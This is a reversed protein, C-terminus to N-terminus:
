RITNSEDKLPATEPATTDEKNYQVGDGPLAIRMGNIRVPVVAFNGGVTFPLQKDGALTRITLTHAGPALPLRALSVTAPLMRWSREDAGELLMGAAATAIKAVAGLLGGGAKEMQREAARQAALRAAARTFTRVMIMPMEDKLARRAMLGFDAVQDVAVAQGDILLTDIPTPPQNDQISPFSLSVYSNNLQGDGNIYPLNMHLSISKRGAILGNELILLVDSSRVAPETPKGNKSSKKTKAGTDRATRAPATRQDLGALTNELVAKRPQLEIAKRYGAAALGPEGLAEYVFGALYHSFANQYSNTLANIAPSDISEVPYGKIDRFSRPRQGKSSDALVEEAESIQKERVRAIIAEREHSKKVEVRANDWDGGAIYNLAQRSALLVKEFDQGQYTSTKDNVLFTSITESTKGLTHEAEAEWAAIQQDAERWSQNSSAYNGKLRLLEGKELFYLLDKGGSRDLDLLAADLNNSSLQSATQRTEEGYNRMAGACGTLSLILFLSLSYHGIHARAPVSTIQDPM